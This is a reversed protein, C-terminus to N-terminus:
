IIVAHDDIVLQVDHWNSFWVLRHTRCFAVDGALESLEVNAHKRFHFIEKPRDIILTNVNALHHELAREIVSRPDIKKGHVLADALAPVSVRPIIRIIARPVAIVSKLIWIM